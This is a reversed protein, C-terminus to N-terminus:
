VKTKRRARYAMGLAGIGFIAMSTPEPVAGGTGSSFTLSVSSGAGGLGWSFTRAVPNIGLSAFSGSFTMSGSIAGGSVYGAPLDLTTPSNFYVNIASGSSTTALTLGGTGFTQAATSSGTLFLSTFGGRQIIGGGPLIGSAGGPFTGINILGTTNIYGTYTLEVTGDLKDVMSMVVAAQSQGAMVAMVAVCLSLQIARFM